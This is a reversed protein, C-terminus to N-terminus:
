EGARNTHYRRLHEEVDSGEYPPIRFSGSGAGEGILFHPPVMRGRDWLNRILDHVTGVKEDASGEEVCRDRIPALCSSNPPEKGQYSRFSSEVPPNGEPISVRLLLVKKRKKKMAELVKSGDKALEVGKASLSYYAGDKLIGLHPPVRHPEILLLFEGHLPPSNELKRVPSIETGKM